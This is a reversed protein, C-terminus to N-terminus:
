AVVVGKWAGGTYIWFKVGTTDFIMPVRGTFATPVGTPTGACTPIYLFGDTATTALAATGVIVSGQDSLRFVGAGMNGSGNSRTHFVMDFSFNGATGNTKYAQIAAAQTKTAGNYAGMFILTGGTGLAAATSDTVVIGGSSLAAPNNKAGQVELVDTPSAQNIGVRNGSATILLYGSSNTQLDTYVSNDTYTLRLQPNTANLIDVGRRPTTTNFGVNGSTDTAFATIWTIANGAVGAAAVDLRFPVTASAAANGIRWPPITAASYTDGTSYNINSGFYPENAAGVYLGAQSNAAGLRAVWYNGAVGGTLKFWSPNTVGTTSPTMVMQGQPQLAFVTTTGGGDDTNGIYRCYLHGLSATGTVLTIFASSNVLAVRASVQGYFDAAGYAGMSQDAMLVTLDTAWVDLNQAAPHTCLFIGGYASQSNSTYQYMKTSDVNAVATVLSGDAANDVYVTQHVHDGSAFNHLLYYTSGGAKTRVISRAIVGSRQQPVTLSYQNAAAVVATLPSLGTHNGSVDWEIYAYSYNGTLGGASAVAAITGIPNGLAVGYGIRATDTGSLYPGAPNAAFGGLQTGPVKLTHLTSDWVFNPYDQTAFGGASAFLVASGTFSGSAFPFLTLNGSGDFVLFQNARQAAAATTVTFTTGDETSPLKLCRDLQEQLMRSIMVELDHQNEIEDLKLRDANAIDTAQTIPSNPIISIKYGSSLAGATLWAQGANVLTISGGSAGGAGAVTYDTGKVLTTEVGTAILRIIVKIHTDVRFPFTVSYLSTLGDATYDSRKTVISVTM